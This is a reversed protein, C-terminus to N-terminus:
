TSTNQQAKEGHLAWREEEAPSLASLPSGYCCRWWRTRPGGEWLVGSRCWGPTCPLSCCDTYSVTTKNLIFARTYLNVTNKTHIFIVLFTMARNLFSAPLCKIVSNVQALVSQNSKFNPIMQREGCIGTGTGTHTRTHTHTLDPAQCVLGMEM